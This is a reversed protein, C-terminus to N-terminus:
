QKINDAADADEDVMYHVCWISHNNDGTASICFTNNGAEDTMNIM